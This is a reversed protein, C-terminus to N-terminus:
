AGVRLVVISAAELTGGSAQVTFVHTGAGPELAFYVSWPIRDTNAAQRVPLAHLTQAGLRLSVTQATTVGGWSGCALIALVQGASTTVSLSTGSSSEIDVMGALAQAVLGEISGFRQERLVSPPTVTKKSM